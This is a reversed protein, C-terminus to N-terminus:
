DDLAALLEGHHERLWARAADADPAYRRVHTWFRATHGPEALHALEHIVVYDLVPPPALLLRWNLSLSGNRSASGWRAKQARVSLGTPTVGVLPALVAVREELVRRAERRLSRELRDREATTGATVMRLEGNVMLQRGQALSPRAAARERGALIRTMQSDLWVAHKEVLLAASREPARMPLVVVAQGDRTVTLRVHRARASRRVTYPHTSVRASGHAGTRVPLRRGAM